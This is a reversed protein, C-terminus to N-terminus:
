PVHGYSSQYLKGMCHHHHLFAIGLLLYVTKGNGRLVRNGDYFNSYLHIDTISMLSYKALSNSQKAFDSENEAVIPPFKAQVANPDAGKKLMLYTLCGDWDWADEPTEEGDSNTKVQEVFTAYSALFNPKLQTNSPM